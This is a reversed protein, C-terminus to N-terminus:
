SVVLVSKDVVYRLKSNKALWANWFDSDVVTLGFKEGKRTPITKASKGAAIPGILQVVAYDKAGPTGLELTLGQPLSCYVNVKAM